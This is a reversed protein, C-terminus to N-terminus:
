DFCVQPEESRFELLLSCKMWHLSCLCGCWMSIWVSRYDLSSTFVVQMILQINYCMGKLRFYRGWSLHRTTGENQLKAGTSRELLQRIDTILTSLCTCVYVKTHHAFMDKYFSLFVLKFIDILKKVNKSCGLHYSPFGEIKCFKLEAKKLM